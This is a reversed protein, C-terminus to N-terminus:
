NLFESKLRLGYILIGQKTKKREVGISELATYFDSTSRAYEGSRACFARYESYFEGSKQTYAKDMECCEEIFYGLWDNNKKYTEISEQVIQPLTLHYNAKIVKQAGDIVWQLIVSGCTEYLYDAYNKIDQSGEITALFPIVILRRWTGKDIAGVKPLHNTYLVLTHTPVYKFPDKYKKEAAIEDTSCLQKINSTNLRMGEELEAAILLRKGKAEALEPKVNRRIQSTLIDASISGAYTGLIRSIVNWFTSKGNRGEGYSIILAEVYVKGIAALGVILQVYDILDQDNVFITNLTELWIHENENSVSVSTQKTIFNSPNHAQLSGNQLNITGKPTNLLFENTDLDVPAIQIMPHVEKLASWIYKSDRRKIAYKEYNLANEYKEYARKQLKNFQEKAKKAGIGIILKMAGTNTLDKLCKEIEITAEDLQRETLEQAVAQALPKSEEWFRGNYVLYETSPSYRLKHKYERALVTAQGVDSYDTPMLQLEQNYHEPQIYDAQSSIKHGFKIASNWITRLEDQELPPNCKEAEKLFLQYATDSNGYRKILKGAIHSLTANRSGEEISPLQLEMEEFVDVDDFLLEDITKTGEFWVIEDTNHGFIFRAADLANADFFSYKAQVKRKFNECEETSNFSKHPFYVHHRPRVSRGNKDKMNNRSPVVAYSVGDLLFEYDEPYIWDSPNDSHENDCDFVDCDSSIFNEKNRYNNKFRACVHDHLVAQKLEEANRVTHLTQYVCNKANGSDNSSYITLNM